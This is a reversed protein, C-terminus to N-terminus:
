QGLYLYLVLSLCLSAVGMILVIVDYRSPFLNVKGSYKGYLKVTYAVYLNEAVKLMEVIIPRSVKVPNFKENRARMNFLVQMALDYFYPYYSLAVIIPVGKEGFLDLITSKDVAESLVVFLNIYVLARLTFVYLFEKSTVDLILFSLSAIALDILIVLKRRVLALAVLFPVLPYYLSSVVILGLFLLSYFFSFKM